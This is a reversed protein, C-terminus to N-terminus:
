MRKTLTLCNNGTSITRASLLSTCLLQLQRRKKETETEDKHSKMTKCVCCCWVTICAIHQSLSLCFFLYCCHHLYWCLIGFTLFNSITKSHTAHAANNAKQAISHFIVRNKTLLWVFSFPFSTEKTTEFLLTFHTYKNDLCNCLLALSDCESWPFTECWESSQISHVIHNSPLHRAGASGAVTASVNVLFHFQLAIAAVCCALCISDWM